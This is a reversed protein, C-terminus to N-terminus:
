WRRGPSEELFQRIRSGLGRLLRIKKKKVLDYSEARIKDNDHKSQQALFDTSPSVVQSRIVFITKRNHISYMYTFWKNYIYYCLACCENHVYLKANCYLQYIISNVSKKSKKIKENGFTVASSSSPPPSLLSVGPKINSPSRRPFGMLIAIHVNFSNWYMIM